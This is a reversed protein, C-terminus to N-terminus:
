SKIGVRRKRAADCAAAHVDARFMTRPQHKASWLREPARSPSVEPVLCLVECWTSLWGLSSLSSLVTPSATWVALVRMSAQAFLVLRKAEQLAAEAADRQEMRQLVALAAAQASAPQPAPAACQAGRRAEPGAGASQLPAGAAQAGAQQIAPPTHQAARCGPDGPGAQPGEPPSPRLAHGPHVAPAWAQAQSSKAAECSGTQFRADEEPTSMPPPIGPPLEELHMGHPGGLVSAAARAGAKTVRRCYRDARLLLQHM